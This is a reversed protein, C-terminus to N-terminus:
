LCIVLAFCVFMCFWYVLCCVTVFLNVGFLWCNCCKFAFCFILHIAVSNFLGLWREYWCFLTWCFLGVLLCSLMILVWLLYCLDVVGFIAILDVFLWLLLVFGFDVVAFLCIAFADAAYLRGYLVLLWNVLGFLFVWFM